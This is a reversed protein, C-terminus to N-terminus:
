LNYDPLPTAAESEPSPIAEDAGAGAVSGTSEETAAASTEVVTAEASGNEGETTGPVVAVNASTNGGRPRSITITAGDTTAYTTVEMGDESPEVQAVDSTPASPDGSNEPADYVYEVQPRIEPQEQPSNMYENLAVGGMIVLAAVLVILVGVMAQM